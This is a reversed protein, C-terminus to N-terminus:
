NLNNQSTKPNLRTSDGQELGQSFSRLFLILPIFFHPLRYVAEHAWQHLSAIPFDWYFNGFIRALSTALGWSAAYLLFWKAWKSPLFIGAAVVFDVTGAVNLFHMAGLQSIGLIRMTMEFFYGPRPYYGLAYLGHCSFTLAIAIKMWFALRDSIKGTKLVVLLFVPSGIQLAFEFFQGLHYFHDKTYLLALVFLRFTGLWLFFRFFHPLRKIFIAILSCMGFFIGIVVTFKQITEDVALNTVYEKWTWGTLTEILGQMLSQDWLLERYPADWFLHQWARGAFVCATAIQLIKVFTHRKIELM